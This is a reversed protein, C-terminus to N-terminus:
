NGKEKTAKVGDYVAREQEKTFGKLHFSRSEESGDAPDAEDRCTYWVGTHFFSSSTEFAYRGRLYAIAWAVPGDEDDDGPREGDEDIWGYDAAEGDEASKPTVIEFTEVIRCDTDKEVEVHGEHGCDRCRVHQLNGLIGLLVVTTSDCASCQFSAM